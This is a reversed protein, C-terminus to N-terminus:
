RCRCRRIKLAPTGPFCERIGGLDEPGASTPVTAAHSWELFAILIRGNVILHYLDTTELGRQSSRKALPHRMGTRGVRWRPGGASARRAFAAALARVTALNGTSDDFGYGLNWPPEHLESSM